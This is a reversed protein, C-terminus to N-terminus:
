AREEWAPDPNTWRALYSTRPRNNLEGLLVYNRGDRKQESVRSARDAVDGFVIADAPCTQQCATKIDGDALARGALKARRKGENIRQV